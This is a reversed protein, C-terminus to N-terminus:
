GKGVCHVFVKLGKQSATTIMHMTGKSSGDWVAILAEANNAMQVNRAFGARGGYREWNAPFRVIPLNRGIAYKEGYTDVGAATGSVVSTIEFKSLRIAEMVDQSTVGTRSGAIITKM